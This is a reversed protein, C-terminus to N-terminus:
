PKAGKAEYKHLAIKVAGYAPNRWDINQNVFKLVLLLEAIVKDREDSKQGEEPESM